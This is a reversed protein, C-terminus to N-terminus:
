STARRCASSRSARKPSASRPSRMSWSATPGKPDLAVCALLGADNVARHHGVIESQHRRAQRRRHDTRRGGRVRLQAAISKRRELVGRHCWAHSWSLWRKTRARPRARDFGFLDDLGGGDIGVVIVECRELLTMSPSRRTKPRAWFEAGPWGDTKMGIGIEINLHQSAWIRIAQDGKSKETEWDAILSNLHVSRGLNPMVM